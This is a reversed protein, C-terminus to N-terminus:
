NSKEQKYKQDYIKKYTADSEFDYFGSYKMNVDLKCRDYDSTAARVPTSFALLMYCFLIFFRKM